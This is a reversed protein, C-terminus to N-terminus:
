CSALNIYINPGPQWFQYQVCTAAQLGVTVAIKSIWFNLKSAPARSLGLTTIWYLKEKTRQATLGEYTKSNPRWIDPKEINKRTNWVTVLWAFGHCILLRYVSCTARVPRDLPAQLHSSSADRCRQSDTPPPGISWLGWIWSGPWLLRRWLRVQCHWVLPDESHKASWFLNRFFYIFIVYLIFCTVPSACAKWHNRLWCIGIAVGFWM